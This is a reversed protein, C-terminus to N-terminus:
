ARSGADAPNLDSRVYAVRPRTSSALALVSWRRVVRHLAKSSSRCKTFVAAVVFSDTLYLHQCGISARARCRWRLGNLLARGELINIHEELASGDDLMPKSWHWSFAVHWNWLRPTITQKHRAEPRSLVGSMMHVDSGRTGCMNSLNLVLRQGPAWGRVNRPAEEEEETILDLVPAQLESNKRERVCFKAFEICLMEESLRGVFDLQDLSAVLAFWLLRPMPSIALLRLRLIKSKADKHQSSTTATVTHDTTLSFIRELETLNPMRRM